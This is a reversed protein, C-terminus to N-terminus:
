GLVLMVLLTITILFIIIGVIVTNAISVSGAKKIRERIVNDDSKSKIKKIANVAHRYYLRNSFTGTFFILMWSLFGAFNYLFQFAGSEVNFSNAFSILLSNRMFDTHLMMIFTPISIFIQLMLSLISFLKMKRYAYYFTPIFMASLNLSIKYGVDKMRKFIPLYYYVNEGIFDALERASVGDFDEEPNLGCLPDSFNIKFAEFGFTNGYNEYEFNKNQSANKMDEPTNNSLPMGCKRCFLSLPPNETECVPCRVSIGASKAKETETSFTEHKEHLEYNICKGEEFYCERHYPTGCEPCVIIDDNETFTKKCKFCKVGIYGTM